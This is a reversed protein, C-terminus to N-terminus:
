KKNMKGTSDIALHQIMEKTKTKFAVNFTKACKSIYSYYHCSLPLLALKFVYNMFRLLGRLSMSFVRKVMFVTTIIVNSSLHPDGRNGQKTQSWRQIVKENVM